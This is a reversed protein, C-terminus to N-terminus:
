IFLCLKNTFDKFYTDNLYTLGNKEFYKSISKFSKCKKNQNLFMDLSTMTLCDQNKIKKYFVSMDEVSEMVNFGFIAKLKKVLKNRFDDKTLTNSYILLKETRSRNKIYEMFTKIFEHTYLKKNNTKKFDFDVILGLDDLLKTFNQNTQKFITDIDLIERNYSKFIVSVIDNNIKEISLNM